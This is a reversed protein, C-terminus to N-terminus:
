VVNLPGSCRNCCDYTVRFNKTSFRSQYGHGMYQRSMKKMVGRLQQQETLLNVDSSLVELALKEASTPFMKLEASNNQTEHNLILSTESVSLTPLVGHVLNLTEEALSSNISAMEVISQETSTPSASRFSPITGSVKRLVSNLSQILRKTHVLYQLLQAREDMLKQLASQAQRFRTYLATKWNSLEDSMMRSALFKTRWVDCEIELRDSEESYEECMKKWHNLEVTQQVNRNVLDDLRNSIDEGVSAVLLRKIEANVKTQVGLQVSLRTKEEVLKSNQEELDDIIKQRDVFEPTHEIVISKQAFHERLDLESTPLAVTLLQNEGSLSLRLQNNSHPLDASGQLLLNTRNQQLVPKSQQESTALQVRDIFPETTEHKAHLDRNIITSNNRAISELQLSTRAGKFTPIHRGFHEQQNTTHELSSSKRHPLDNKNGCDSTVGDSSSSSAYEMGDGSSRPLKSYDVQTYDVDKDQKYLSFREMALPLPELLNAM